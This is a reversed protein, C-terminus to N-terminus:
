IKFQKSRELAEGVQGRAVAALISEFSEVVNSWSYRLATSRANERISKFAEEELAALERARGVFAQEDAFPALFGNDGTRICQRGAAYDYALTVLGSALAETVVNGFTETVSPFLFADASAYHRALDEGSRMGVFLIGPYASELRAREPGDGVIVFRDGRRDPLVSEEFAAVALDINKEKAVRGVYMFVRARPGVGWETRLSADRREPSFLSTDVGRSLVGANRYGSAELSAAMEATPALTVSCANHVSRMYAQLMRTIFGVKYHGTYQDFNTHFTSSVPIKLQRAAWLAVLGLPGETAIHVVDPRDRRWRNRLSFFAPEGMRLGKYGPLPLGPLVIEDISFDRTPSRWEEEAQEPRVVSVRWGRAALGGCLRGLTMSVGNVEPPFTETVLCLKVIDLSANLRKARPRCAEQVANWGLPFDRGM